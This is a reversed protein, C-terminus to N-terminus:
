DKKVKLTKLTSAREVLLGFMNAMTLVNYNNYHESFFIDKYVSTLFDDENKTPVGLQSFYFIPRDPAIEYDQIISTLALYFAFRQKLFLGEVKTEEGKYDLPDEGAIVAYIIVSARKYRSILKGKDKFYLEKVLAKIRLYNSYIRRCADKKVSCVQSFKVKQSAGDSDRIEFCNEVWEKVTGDWLEVFKEETM